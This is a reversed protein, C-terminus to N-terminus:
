RLPMATAIKNINGIYAVPAGVDGGDVLTLIKDLANVGNAVEDRGFTTGNINGTADEAIYAPCTRPLNDWGNLWDIGSNANHTRVTRAVMLAYAMADCARQIAQAESRSGDVSLAM